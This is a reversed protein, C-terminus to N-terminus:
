RITVADARRGNECASRGKVNGSESVVNEIVNATKEIAGRRKRMQLAFWGFFFFYECKYTCTHM